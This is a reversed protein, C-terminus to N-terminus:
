SYTEMFNRAILYDKVYQPTNPNRAVWYRVASDEDRAMIILTEPPTNPNQSVSLRVSIMKDNALLALTEPPTNPNEAVACHVTFYEDSALLTLIKPSTKEDSALSKKEWLSLTFLYFRLLLNFIM